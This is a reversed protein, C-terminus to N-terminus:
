GFFTCWIYYSVTSTPHYSNNYRAYHHLQHTLAAPSLSTCLFLNLSTRWKCTSLASKNTLLFTYRQCNIWIIYKWIELKTLVFRMRLSFIGTVYVNKQYSYYKSAYWSMYHLKHVTSRIRQIVALAVTASILIQVNALIMCYWQGCLPKNISMRFLKICKIMSYHVCPVISMSLLIRIIKIRELFVGDQYLRKWLLKFCHSHNNAWNKTSHWISFAQFPLILPRYHFQKARKKVIRKWLLRAAIM